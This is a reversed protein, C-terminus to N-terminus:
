DMVPEEPVESDWPRSVAPAPALAAVPADDVWSTEAQSAPAAYANVGATITANWTKDVVTNEVEPMEGDVILTPEVTTEVGDQMWAPAVPVHYTVKYLTKGDSGDNNFWFYWVTDKEEAGMKLALGMDHLNAGDATQNIWLLTKNNEGETYTYKGVEVLSKEAMVLKGNKVTAVKDVTNGALMLLNSEWADDAKVHNAKTTEDTMKYALATWYGGTGRNDSESYCAYDFAHVGAVEYTEADVYVTTDATIGKAFDFATTKEKDAYFGLILADGTDITTPAAVTKNYEVTKSELAAFPKDALTKFSVTFTPINVTKVSLDAKTVAKVEDNVYWLYYDTDWTKNELFTLVNKEDVAAVPLYSIPQKAHITGNDNDQVLEQKTPTDTLNTVYAVHTANAPVVTYAVGAVVKTASANKLHALTDPNKAAFDALEAADVTLVGDALTLGAEGYTKAYEFDQAPPTGHDEPGNPRFTFAQKEVPLSQATVTMGDTVTIADGAAYVTEDDVWKGTYYTDGESEATVAPAIISDGSVMVTKHTEGDVFNVKKMGAITVASADVTITIKDQARDCKDLLELTITAADALTKENGDYIKQNVVLIVGGDLGLEDKIGTFQGHKFDAITEDAVQLAYSFYGDDNAQGQYTNQLKELTTKGTLTITNDAVAAEFGLGEAFKHVWPTGDKELATIVEATDAATARITVGTAKYFTVDFTVNYTAVTEGARNVVTVVPAAAKFDEETDESFYVTNYDNGNPATYVRGAITPVVSGNVKYTYTEDAPAVPMGFGVWHGDAPQANTHNKVGRATIKVDYVGTSKETGTVTLSDTVNEGFGGAKQDVSPAEVVDAKKVSPTHSGSSSSGTGQATVEKGKSDKAPTVDKATTVKAPKNGDFVVDDANTNLNKVTGNNDIKAAANADLDTVSSGKAVTVSVPADVKVTSATAKIVVEDTTGVGVVVGAAKGTVTVTGQEEAASNIVVFKNADDVTVTCPGTVYKAIAKDLLTFTSARNINVEPALAVAGDGAPLGNLIGMDTLATMYPKAWDAVKDADTFRDLSNGSAPKVGLARGVMVITQQRDIPAEPNAKGTGDGLMIGAQACKLVADAYWDTAAVDNFTNAPAKAKLGLLRTLITALEARKLNRQPNVTGDGDGVIIGDEAWRNIASEAWHGEVDTFKPAETKSIAVPEGADEAALAPSVFLTCVMVVALLLAMIKRKSM